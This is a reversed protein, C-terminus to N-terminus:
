PLRSANREPNNSSLDFKKKKKYFDKRINYIDESNSKILKIFWQTIFTNNEESWLKTSDYYTQKCNKIKHICHM